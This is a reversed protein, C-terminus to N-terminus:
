PTVIGAAPERFAGTGAIRLSHDDAGALNRELKWVVVAELAFALHTARKHLSDAIAEVHGDGLHRVLIAPLGEAQADGTDTIVRSVGVLDQAFDHIEDVVVVPTGHDL